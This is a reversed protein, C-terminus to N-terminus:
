KIKGNSKLVPVKGRSSIKFGFKKGQRTIENPGVDATTNVGPVVLGAGDEVIIKDKELFLDQLRM